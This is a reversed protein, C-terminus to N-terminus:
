PAEGRARRRLREIQARIEEATTEPLGRLRQQPLSRELQEAHGLLDAAEARGAATDLDLPRAQREAERREAERREAERREATERRRTELEAAAEERDAAQRRGAAVAHDIQDQLDDLTMTGVRLRARIGREDPSPLGADRRRCALVAIMREARDAGGRM